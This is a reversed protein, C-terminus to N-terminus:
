TKIIYNLVLTPQVLSFASGSGASGSTGTYNPVDVSHSHATGGGTTMTHQHSGAVNTPEAGTYPDAGPHYAAWNGSGDYTDRTHFPTQHQHDGNSSTTGSHTHDSESGSTFSAHDHDISHTHSPMHSTTINATEAGATGGLASFTGAAAKGAPVRNRLDPVNFTTSGDGSGYTTGVVAYLASYTTRSVATGDCMLWGSPASSGAFANVSGSPIVPIADVYQKPAAHLDVTPNGSLTLAGTMTDGAKAVKLADGSDVYTKTAAHLANTPAGSLTLLGEMTDGDVNVFTTLLDSLLRYGSLASWTSAGDGIKLTNTDTEFGPEGVSLVPDAALWNASTDRRLKLRPM